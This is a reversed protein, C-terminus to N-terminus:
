IFPVDRRAQRRLIFWIIVPSGLLATVANLPLVAQSGPLQAALDAILSTTAGALATGPILVRHDSTRFSARALHPVAIGIFAIPGCFATVLGVLFATTGLVMVRVMTFDIGMSMAYSEGLLLGNLPKALMFSVIILLLCLPVFLRLQPWTVSAFSGFTWALYSQILEPRSFHVLVSVVSNIALSGLVGVILVTMVSQVRRALILVLMMVVAAGIASATMLLVNGRLGLATFVNSGEIGVGTGLVVLAVGLSAGATVGLVSPGALPNKFLTQMMLGSVSLAMGAIFATIAKPLRFLVVIDNWGQHYQGKGQCLLIEFVVSPDIYVSGTALDLLFAAAAIAFLGSFVIFKNRNM